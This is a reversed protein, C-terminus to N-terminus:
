RQSIEKALREWKDTDRQELSRGFGPHWRKFPM